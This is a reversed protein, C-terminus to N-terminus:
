SRRAEINPTSWLRDLLDEGGIYISAVKRSPEFTLALWDGEETGRRNLYGRLGVISHGLLHLDGLPWEGHDMLAYGEQVFRRISSPIYVFGSRIIGPTLRKMLWVEGSESWGYDTNSSKAVAQPLCRSLQDPSVPAGRLRYVGQRIRDLVPSNSLLVSFTSLNMGCALCSVELQERSAVGGLGRIISVLREEESGELVGRWDLSRDAEVREAEVKVWPMRSCVERLIRRPPALGRMGRHRGVGSRLEGVDVSDAIALVKLVQNVVRNGVKTPRPGLRPQIWFWTRDDDLWEFRPLWSLVARVDEAAMELRGAMMLDDLNCVGRRRIHAGALRLLQRLQRVRKNRVVVRVGNRRIIRFPSTGGLLSLARPLGELRFPTRALGKDVLTHEITSADAVLAPCATDLVKRLIPPLVGSSSMRDRVSGVIQNVRQRSLHFAAGAEELTTGGHGDLGAYRLIIHANTKSGAMGAVLLLEDELYEAAEPYWIAVVESDIDARMGQEMEEINAPPWAPLHLGLGLDLRKLIGQLEALSRRGFNQQRMLYLPTLRVLDGVRSVCLASLCNRTRASLPLRRCQILLRDLPIPVPELVIRADPPELIATGGAEAIQALGESRAWEVLALIENTTKVGVDRTTALKTRSITALEALSAVRLRRLSNRARTSLDWRALFREIDGEGRKELSTVTLSASEDSRVGEALALIEHM